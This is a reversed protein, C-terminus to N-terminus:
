PATEGSQAFLPACADFDVVRFSEAMTLGWREGTAVAWAEIASAPAEGISRRTRHPEVAALKLHLTKTVDVATNPEDSRYLYVEPGRHGARAAAMMAALAAEGAHLHDPRGEGNSWPGHTVLRRPRYELILAVLEQELAPTVTLGGDPHRLFHVGAVGLIAAAAREEQERLVSLEEPPLPPESRGAEGSKCTVYAVREGERCWRAVSAGSSIDVDDAHPQIVLITGPAPSSM